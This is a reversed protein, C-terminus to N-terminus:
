QEGRDVPREAAIRLTRGRHAGCKSIDFEYVACHCKDLYISSVSRPPELEVPARHLARAMALVGRLRQGRWHLSKAAHEDRDLILGCNTCVHTRLSLSKQIREGDSACDQPTYAPDLAAVRKGACAARSARITLLPAVLRGRHEHQAGGQPQGGHHASGGHLRRPAATAM